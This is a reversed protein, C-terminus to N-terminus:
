RRKGGAAPPPMVRLVGPKFAGRDENLGRDLQRAKERRKKKGMGKQQIMGAAIGEELARQDRQAQKKAMGVGISAPIRPRAAAKAGIRALQEAEFKKRAKKDLATAGLLQVERHIQLFEERSLGEGDAPAAALSPAGGSSRRRRGAQPQQPGDGALVAAKASMFRKREQQLRALEAAQAAQAAAAAGGPGGGAGGAPGGGRKSGASGRRSDFIHEVVDVKKKKRSGTQPQQEEDDSDSGSAESASDHTAAEDQSDSGDTSESEGRGNTAALPQEDESNHDDFMSMFREGYAALRSQLDDQPEESKPQKRKRAATAEAKAM